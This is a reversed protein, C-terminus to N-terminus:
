LKMLGYGIIIWLTHAHMIRTFVGEYMAKTFIENNTGLSSPLTIGHVDRAREQSLIPTFHIRDKEIESNPKPMFGMPATSGLVTKVGLQKAHTFSERM